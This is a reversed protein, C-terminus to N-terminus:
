KEVCSAEGFYEAGKFFRKMYQYKEPCGKYLRSPNYRYAVATEAFDEYPNKSGYKGVMCTRKSATWSTDDSGEWGSLGLWEQSIDLTEKETLMHTVEHFITQQREWSSTKTWPDYVQVDSTAFTGPRFEPDWKGRTYRTLQRNGGEGLPGMASPFDKLAILIDDMESENFRTANPFSYESSNFGFRLYVYSLQKSYNAGWIKTMACAVKNCDPNISFLTQFNKPNKIDQYNTTLREFMKLMRPDDKLTVGNITKEETVGESHAKIVDDMDEMSPASITKCPAKQMQVGTSTWLALPAMISKILVDESPLGPPLCEEGQEEGVHALSVFSYQILLFLIFYKM